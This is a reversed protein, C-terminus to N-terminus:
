SGTRLLRRGLFVLLALLALFLVLYATRIVYEFFTVEDFGETFTIRSDLMGYVQGLDRTAFDYVTLTVPFEGAIGFPALTATYATHATDVRLLFQARRSPDASDRVELIITKLHEPVADYPVSVTLQKSGDILAHESQSAIRKGEQFFQIDLFTLVLPTTTSTETEPPPADGILIATVAGSSINGQTDYAFVTYYRWGDRLAAGKDYAAEGDGEYVLWGDATDTPYFRDSRLIRVHDFDADNPNEWTLVVGDGSEEAELNMVNGPAFVDDVPLTMFNGTHMVGYRGSILEGEVSFSYETNPKLGMISTEHIRLFAQERLSGIEYTVSEGYRVVGRIADRTTYRLVAGYQGPVVELSVLQKGLSLRTGYTTRIEEEDPPEPVSPTTTSVETSSASENFVSDFATVYYRYTTSATLGTDVYTIATTTAILIDDRWVHYGSLLWDDTSADWALDIQTPAIPTAVLNTPISPPTTDAGVMTQVTFTDLIAHTPPVFTAFVLTAVCLVLAVFLSLRGHASQM